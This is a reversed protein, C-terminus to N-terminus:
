ITLGGLTGLAGALGGLSSIPSTGSVGSANGISMGGRIYNSRQPRRRMSPRVGGVNYNEGAGYLRMPTAATLSDIAQQLPNTFSQMQQSFMEPVSNLLDLYNQDAQDYPTNLGAMYNNIGTEIGSQIAAQIEENTMGPATTEAPTTAATSITQPAVGLRGGGIIQMGKPVLGTGAAGQTGGIMQGKILTGPTSPTGVAQSLAQGIKGTGFSPQAYAPAASASKILMNAAGSNLAVTQEGAKKLNANLNDLQQIIKQMSAGTNEQINQLEKKSIGGSSVEKVAARVNSQQKNNSSSKNNAM